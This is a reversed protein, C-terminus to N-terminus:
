HSNGAVPLRHVFDRAQNSAEFIQRLTEQAPHKEPLDMSVLEASGLIGAILNNFEHAVGGALQNLAHFKQM